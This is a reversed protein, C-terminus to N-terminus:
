IKRNFGGLLVTPFYKEPQRSSYLRGWKTAHPGLGGVSVRLWASAVLWEEWELCPWFRLLLQHPPQPLSWSDAIYRCYIIPFISSFSSLGSSRSHKGLNASLGINTNYTYIYIYIHYIYM